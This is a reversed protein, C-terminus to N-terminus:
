SKNANHIHIYIKIRKKLLFPILIDMFNNTNPYVGLFYKFLIKNSKQVMYYTYIFFDIVIKLIIKYGSNPSKNIIFFDLLM